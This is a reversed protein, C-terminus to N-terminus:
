NSYFPRDSTTKDDAYIKEYSAASNKHMWWVMAAILALSVLAPLAVDSATFLSAAEDTILQPNFYSLTVWFANYVFHALIAPWLSESYWYIVGLLIGLMFRPFFGYFQFHIASFIFATIIIGIWPNKSIKIILRQLIGRFFLEEGVAPLVAIFILNLLLDKITNRELLFRIQRNAQDEAAKIWNTVAEPFLINQNIIGLWAVVPIAIILITAALLYYTITGSKKLGIYQVPDPDSFRSFLLSPILFLGLFQVLLMGRVFVIMGPNNSDWNATDGIEALSIGTMKSLVSLGILSFVIFIGFSMGIFLFLQIWAPSTKLYSHM